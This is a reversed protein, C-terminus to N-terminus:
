KVVLTTHEALRCGQITIGAKIASAIAKKDPDVTVKERKYGEPLNTYDFGPVFEVRESKRTSITYAAGNIKSLGHREMVGLYHWDLFDFRREISRAQSMLRQAEARKAEARDLQERRFSCYGDVKDAELKALQTLYKGMAERQEHTMEEDAVDLMAAIEDQIAAFTPKKESM